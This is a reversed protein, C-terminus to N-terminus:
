ASIHVMMRKPCIQWHPGQTLHAAMIPAAGAECRRGTCSAAFATATRRCHRPWNRLLRGLRCHEDPICPSYFLEKIVVETSHM